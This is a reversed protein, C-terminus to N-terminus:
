LKINFVEPNQYFGSVYLGSFDTQLLLLGKGKVTTLSALVTPGHYQFFACSVLFLIWEMVDHWM